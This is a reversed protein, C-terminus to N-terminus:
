TKYFFILKYFYLSIMYIAAFLLSSSSELLVRETYKIQYYIVLVFFFRINSWYICIM